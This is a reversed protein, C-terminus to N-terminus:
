KGKKPREPPPKPRDWVPEGRKPQKVPKKGPGPLRAPGVPSGPLIRPIGTGPVVPGPTTPGPSFPGQGGGGPLKSM